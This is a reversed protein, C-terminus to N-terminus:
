LISTGEPVEDYTLIELTFSHDVNNFDYYTGDPTKIEISLQNLHYNSPNNFYMPTDVFTNYVYENLKGSLNIKYFFEKINGISEINNLEKCIIVIYPPGNFLLPNRIKINQQTLDINFDTGVISQIVNILNENEYIIDNNIIQKYPTISTENGTDRFGLEKGFTDQYDFRIRFMNPTYIQIENNSNNNFTSNTNVNSILIDYNDDDIVQTIIHENNLYIDPIDEYNLSGKIIISDGISLSHVPHYIKIRIFNNINTVNNPFHIYYNGSPYKYYLDEINNDTYLSSNIYSINIKKKYTQTNGANYENYSTFEVKGTTEDINLEIINKDNTLTNDKIRFVNKVSDEFIVKLESTTYNGNGIDISYLVDGDDMNQWYFKNNRFNTLINNMFLKQTIPFVSSVMKIMVVNIYNKEFDIIYKNPQVYAPIFEEIIGIYMNSGGFNDLLLGNKDMEILIYKNNNIEKIYKFGEISTFGVPYEAILKKNPIGGTHHYTITIDSTAQNYLTIYLIGSNMYNVNYLMKRQKYPHQLMVYFINTEPVSLTNNTSNIGIDSITLYMQHSSNIFNLFVNGISSANTIRTTNPSILRISTSYPKDVFLKKFFNNYVDNMFYNLIPRTVNQVKEVYEILEYITLTSKPYTSLGSSLLYKRSEVEYNIDIINKKGFDTIDWYINKNENIFLIDPPLSLVNGYIDVDFKVIIMNMNESETFQTTNIKDSRVDESITFTYNDTGTIKEVSCIFDTTNFYLETKIDGNFGSFSINMDKYIDYQYNYGINMNIDATVTMYQKGEELLFYNTKNGYDDDVVSRIVIKKETFGSITIKDNLNFQSTDSVMIKLDNGYFSMPSDELYIPAGIKTIPKKNRYSSDIDIYQTNYVSKTKGILGNKHLWGIYPDYEKKKEENQKAFEDYDYGRDSIGLPQETNNSNNSYTSQNINNNNAIREYNNKNSNDIITKQEKTYNIDIDRKKNDDENTGGIHEYMYTNKEPTYRRISPYSM